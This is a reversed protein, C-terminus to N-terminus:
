HVGSGRSLGTPRLDVWSHSALRETLTGIVASWDGPVQQRILHVSPYWPTSDGTGWRFDALRSLILLTPVGLSGALHGISTDVTVVADMSTLMNATQALNHLPVTPPVISPHANAESAWQGIQVSHWRVDDRALIPALDGLSISRFRDDRNRPYNSNGAWCIAIHLRGDRTSHDRPRPASFPVFSPIYGVLAPLSMLWTYRQFDFRYPVDRIVVAALNGLNHQAFPVCRPRVALIVEAARQAVIPIYRLMQICDGLGGDALVLLTQSTLDEEGDWAAKVWRMQQVASPQFDLEGPNSLRAERDQWGSWDGARIKAQGRLYVDFPTVHPLGFAVEICQRWLDTYGCELCRLALTHMVAADFPERAVAEFV